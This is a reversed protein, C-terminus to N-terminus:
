CFLAVKADEMSIPTGDSAKEGVWIWLDQSDVAAYCYESPYYKGGFSNFLAAAHKQTGVFYKEDLALVEFSIGYRKSGYFVVDRLVWGGTNQTFFVNGINKVFGDPQLINRKLEAKVTSLRSKKDQLNM